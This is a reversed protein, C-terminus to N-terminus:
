TDNRVGAAALVQEYAAIVVDVRTASSCDPNLDMLALAAKQKALRKVIDEGAHSPSLAALVAEAEAQCGPDNCNPNPWPLEEGKDGRMEFCPPEGMFACKERCLARTAKDLLGTM